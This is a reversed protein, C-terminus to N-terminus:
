FEAGTDRSFMLNNVNQQQIENNQLIQNDKWKRFGEIDKESGLIHIQEPKFVIAEGREGQWLISDHGASVLKKYDNDTISQPNFVEKNFAKRINLAFWANTRKPNKMNLMVPYIKRDSRPHGRTYQWALSKDATFYIGHEKTGSGIGKNQKFEPDDPSKFSEIGKRGGHFFISDLSSDPFINKIYESYEEASGLEQLKSQQKFVFDISAKNKIKQTASKFLNKM